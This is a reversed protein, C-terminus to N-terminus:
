MHKSVVLAAGELWHYLNTVPNKLQFSFRPVPYWGKRCSRYYHRITLNGDFGEPQYTYAISESMVSGLVESQQTLTFFDDIGQALDGINTFWDVVFSFPIMDWVNSFDPVLDVAEAFRGIDTCLRSYPNYYVNLHGSAKALKFPGRESLGHSATVTQGLHNTCETQYKLMSNVLEIGDAALLKYGYHVSLFASAVIKLKGSKTVKALQKLNDIDSLITRPLHAIDKAFAIGNSDFFNVQNLSAVMAREWDYDLYFMAEPNDYFRALIEPREVRFEEALLSKHNSWSERDVSQVDFRVRPQDSEDFDVTWYGYARGIYNTNSSEGNFQFIPCAKYTRYRRGWANFQKYGTDLEEIICTGYTDFAYYDDPLGFDTLSQWTDISVLTTM